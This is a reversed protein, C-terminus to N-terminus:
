NLPTWLREAFGRKDLDSFMNAAIEPRGSRCRWAYIADHGVAACQAALDAAWAGNIQPLIGAVLLAFPLLKM